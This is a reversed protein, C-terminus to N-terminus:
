SKVTIKKAQTEPVKPVTISLVGDVYNAEVGEANVDNGLTVVRRFKGYTREVRHWTKGEEEEEHKREGTIWLQGEKLEVEFDESKMGPMDLSIEYGTGTEAVNTSPAFWGTQDDDHQGFRDLLQTIDAPFAPFADFLSPLRHRYTLQKSM